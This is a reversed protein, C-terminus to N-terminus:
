ELWQLLAPPAPLDALNKAYHAFRVAKDRGVVFVAPLQLEEGEYAGHTFGSRKARNMKQITGISALGLKNKAPSIEFKKYLQMEPDLAIPFPFTDAGIQKRIEEPSSQLFPLVKAGKAAFTPYIERWEHLDLQCTTCGYYRLFLLVAPSEGLYDYINTPPTFATQFTFDPLTTGKALKM